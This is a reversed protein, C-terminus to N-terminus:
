RGEQVSFLAESAQQRINASRQLVTIVLDSATLLEIGPSALQRNLPDDGLSGLSGIRGAIAAQPHLDFALVALLEHDNAPAVGFTRTGPESCEQECVVIWVTPENIGPADPGSYVM